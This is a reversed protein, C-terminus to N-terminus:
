TSGRSCAAGYAISPRVCQSVSAPADGSRVREERGGVARRIGAGRPPAHPWSRPRPSRVPVRHLLRRLGGRPRPDARVSGRHVVGGTLHDRPRRPRRRLRVRRCKRPRLQAQTRGGPDRGAGQRDSRPHRRDRHGHGRGRFRALRRPGRRAPQCDRDGGGDGRSLADPHAARAGAARARVRLRIWPRRRRAGPDPDDRLLAPLRGCRRSLSM